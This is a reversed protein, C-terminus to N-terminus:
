SFHLAPCNDLTSGDVTLTLPFPLTSSLTVPPSTVMLSEKLSLSREANDSTAALENTSQSSQAMYCLLVDDDATASAGGSIGPVSGPFEEIKVVPGELYGSQVVQSREFDDIDKSNASSIAFEILKQTDILEGFGNAQMVSESTTWSGADEISTSCDEASQEGVRFKQHRKRPRPQSRRATNLSQKIMYQGTKLGLSQALDESQIQVFFLVRNTECVM